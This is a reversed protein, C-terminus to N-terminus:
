QEKVRLRITREAVSGATTSIKCYFKYNTNVVGQGLYITAVTDTNTRSVCQIGNVIDSDNLETKVNNENDVYWTVGTITASAIWRSWDVSYDLVEDPDKNPWKFSM